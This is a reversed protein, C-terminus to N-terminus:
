LLRSNNKHSPTKKKKVFDFTNSIYGFHEFLQVAFNFFNLVYLVDKTISTVMKMLFPRLILFVKM